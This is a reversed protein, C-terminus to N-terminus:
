ETADTFFLYDNAALFAEKLRHISLLRTLISIIGESESEKWRCWNSEKLWQINIPGDISIMAFGISRMALKWKRLPLIPNRESENFLSEAYKTAYAFTDNEM